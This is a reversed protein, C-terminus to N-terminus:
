EKSLPNSQVLAQLEAPSGALKAALIADTGPGSAVHPDLLISVEKDSLHDLGLGRAWHHRLEADSLGSPHDSKNTSTEQPGGGRRAADDHQWRTSAAPAGLPEAVVKPTVEVSKDM